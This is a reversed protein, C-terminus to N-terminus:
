ADAEFRALWTPADDARRAVRWGGESTRELIAPTGRIFGPNLVFTYAGCNDFVLWDGRELALGCDRSLIDAEMCTWGSVITRGPPAAARDKRVVRFPMDFGHLTPKIAFVSGGVIAHREGAITKVVGVRAAFRMTDAALAMGPEILLQPGGSPWRARLEQVIARAYAAPSATPTSLQRELAPPMQGAFGGGIDLAKPGAGHPWLTAALDALRATRRAFSDTSREGSLHLHLADVDINPRVALREFVERLEGSDADIGFRGRDSQGIDVNVRLGVRFRRDPRDLALALLDAAEDASDLNILAGQASALDLDERAKLPGNFVISGRAAGLALVLDLETRSVVELLAGCEMATRLIPPAWSTKVSWAIALNPWGAQHFAQTFADFNKRFRACDLLWFGDGHAAAWAELQEWAVDDM